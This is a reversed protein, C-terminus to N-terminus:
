HEELLMTEVWLRRDHSITDVIKELTKGFFGKNQFIQRIEEREGAPIQDIHEEETRRIDEAFERGAKISEYNSIAMSFGDAFLNAFGLVLAISAPLGAGIAGSVVAFTTICGDIGGLVADSINQTRATKALRRKIAEPRHERYLKELKKNKM